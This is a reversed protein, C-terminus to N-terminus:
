AYSLICNRGRSWQGIKMPMTTKVTMLPDNLPPKEETRLTLVAYLISQLVVKRIMIAM